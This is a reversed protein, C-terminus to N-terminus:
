MIKFYIDGDNGGTPDETGYSISPIGLNRRAVPATSAGTGGYAVGLIGTTIDSTSHRHNARAAGIDDATFEVSTKVGDDSVTGNFMLRTRQPMENGMKDLIVHGGSGGTVQWDNLIPVLVENIYEQIALGGEDFKGKLEEATLGGVDNPEDPLTSIVNMDKEFKEIIM